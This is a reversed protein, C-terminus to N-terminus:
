RFANLGSKDMIIMRITFTGASRYVHTRNFDDPSGNFTEGDGWNITFMM